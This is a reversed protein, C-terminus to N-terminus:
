LMLCTTSSTSRELAIIVPAIAKRKGSFDYTRFDDDGEFRAKLAGSPYGQQENTRLRVEIYHWGSYGTKVPISLHIPEANEAPHAELLGDEVKWENDNADTLDGVPPGPLRLAFEPTFKMEQSTALMMPSTALSGDPKLELDTARGMRLANDFPFRGTGM